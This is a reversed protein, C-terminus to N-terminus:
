KVAIKKGNVIYIGKSLGELSTADKRILQGNITYIGTPGDFINNIIGDEQVGNIYTVVTEDSAVFPQPNGIVSWAEEAFADATGTTLDFRAGTNSNAILWSRCAKTNISSGKRVALKGGSIYYDGENIKAPIFSGTMKYGGEGSVENVTEAEIRVGEFTVSTGMDEKSPKIFVPTGAVIMPYWHRKFNIKSGSVNDFHIVDVAGGFVKKMQAVSVSFPFTVAAWKGNTFARTYTVNCIEDAAITEGTTGAKIDTVMNETDDAVTVSKAVTESSPHFQFGRVALKTRFGFFYYTKGGKVPFTYKVNGGSPMVYGTGNIGTYGKVTEDTIAFPKIPDGSSIDNEGTTLYSKYMNYIAELSMKMTTSTLSVM